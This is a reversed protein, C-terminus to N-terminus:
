RYDDTDLVKLRASLLERMEIDLLNIKEFENTTSEKHKQHISFLEKNLNNRIKSQELANQEVALSLEARSFAYHIEYTIELTITNAVEIKEILRKNLDFFVPDPFLLILHAQALDSEYQRKQFDLYTLPITEKYNELTYEYFSFRKLSYLWVSKQRNFDFIAEREATKINLKHQNNLSLQAKLLENQQSLDSKINEVIKTIEGIDEKTAQNTAKAEFYKPWYHKVIYFASLSFFIIIFDLLHHEFEQM